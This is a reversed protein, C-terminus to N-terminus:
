NQEMSWVKKIYNNSTSVLEAVSAPLEPSGSLEVGSVQIVQGAAYNGHAVCIAEDLGRSLAALFGGVFSDGAGNTDVIKEKPVKPVQYMRYESGSAIIVPDLGRTIVVLRPSGGDGLCATSFEMANQEDTNSEPLSLAKALAACETENGFLIDTCPLVEKMQNLFFQALFEASINLCYKKNNARCYEAINKMGEPCVTLWFGASYCISSNQWLAQAEPVSLHDTHYNNAAQLDAVLSRERGVVVVACRGTPAATDKYFSTDVGDNKCGNALTTGADDDAISGTYCTKGESGLCWQAVRISNLTAGGPIYKVKENACIEDFLPTHKSEALCAAAPQIEFRTFVDSDQPFELSCDLLPNGAGFINYTTDASAM